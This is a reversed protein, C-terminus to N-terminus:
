KGPLRHGVPRRRLAIVDRKILAPQYVDHVPMDPEVDQFKRIAASERGRPWLQYGDSAAARNRFLGTVDPAFARKTAVLWRVDATARDPADIGSLQALAYQSRIFRDLDGISTRSRPMPSARM